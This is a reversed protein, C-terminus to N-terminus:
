GDLIKLLRLFQVEEVMLKYAVKMTKLLLYNAKDTQWVNKHDQPTM